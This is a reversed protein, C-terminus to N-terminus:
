CKQTLCEEAGWSKLLVKLIKFFHLLLNSLRTSSINKLRLRLTSTLASCQIKKLSEKGVQM